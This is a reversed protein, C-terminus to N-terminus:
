RCTSGGGVQLRCILDMEDGVQPGAAGGAPGPSTGQQSSNAGSRQVHGGCCPYRGGAKNALFIPPEPHFPCM